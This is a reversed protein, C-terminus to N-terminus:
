PRLAEFVDDFGNSVFATLITPIATFCANVTAADLHQLGVQGAFDADTFVLAAGSPGGSDRQRRLADLAYLNNMLLASQEALQAVLKRRKQQQDIAM